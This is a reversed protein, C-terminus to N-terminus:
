EETPRGALLQRRPYIAFGYRLEIRQETGHEYSYAGEGSLNRHVTGTPCGVPWVM